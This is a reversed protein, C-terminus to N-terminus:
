TRFRQPQQVRRGTVRSIRIEVKETMEVEQLLPPEEANKQAKKPKRRTEIVSQVDNQLQATAQRDIDAQEKALRKTKAAEKQDQARLLREAKRQEIAQRKSLQEARKAEKQANKQLQINVKDDTRRQLTEKAQQIKQPSFFMAGQGDNARLEEFLAQGRKRRKKENYLAQELGQVRAKLLANDTTITMAIDLLKQHTKRDHAELCGTVIKQIHKTDSSSIKSGTSSGASAPRDDILEEFPQLVGLVRIRDLPSIGTKLWASKINKDTFAKYFAPWFLRFFDRKTVSCIGESRQIFQNLEQSYYTALPSFLGVDLPQLRHTSHPPYFAVLIRHTICYELFQMNLHSGHSDVILLRWDRASGGAQWTCRCVLARIRRRTALKSYQVGM